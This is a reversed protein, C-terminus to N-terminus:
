HTHGCCSGCGGAASSGSSGDIGSGGRSYEWINYLSVSSMILTSASELITGFKREDQKITNWRLKSVASGFSGSQATYGLGILSPLLAKFTGKEPKDCQKRVCVNALALAILAYTHNPNTITKAQLKGPMGIFSWAFLLSLASHKNM